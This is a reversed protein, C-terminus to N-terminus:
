AETDHGSPPSTTSSIGSIFIEAFPEAVDHESLSRSARLALYTYNHMGLWVRAALNPDVSRFEGSAMGAEIIAEVREEYLKRRIRFQQAREGTLAPYEYILVWVHEPNRAIVDLLEMGLKRLQSTPSGGQTAVREAGVMVEDMVRDHIAALLAEKSGIYHYLAGSGLENAACLEIVGTAHYGREAFLAASTDIIQERRAKWKASRRPVSEVEVPETVSAGPGPDVVRRLNDSLERRVEHSCYVHISSKQITITV